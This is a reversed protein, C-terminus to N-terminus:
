FSTEECFSNLRLWFNYMRRCQSTDQKVFNRHNFFGIVIQRCCGVNTSHHNQTVWFNAVGFVSQVCKNWKFSMRFDVLCINLRIVSHRPCNAQFYFLGFAMWKLNISCLIEIFLYITLKHNSAIIAAYNIHIQGIKLRNPM